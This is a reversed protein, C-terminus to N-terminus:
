SRPQALAASRRWRQLLHPLVLAVFVFLATVLKLDNPNLGWRLAIAVLLRFLVSGAVALTALVRVHPAELRRRAPEATPEEDPPPLEADFSAALQALRRRAIDARTEEREVRM